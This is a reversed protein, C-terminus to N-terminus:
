KKFHKQYIGKLYMYFLTISFNLSGKKIFIEDPGSFCLSLYGKNKLYLYLHNERNDNEITMTRIDYTDFNITKLIELEYGEVDLSLYDITNIKYQDLISDIKITELEYIKYSGGDKKIADKIRKYHEDSEKSLIGSLMNAPGEVEIFEITKELDAICANITICSRIKQLQDYFRPVPEICIGKWKRTKEFFLSNSFTIGDNAGIDLFFGGEKSQLLRDVINDQRSQSYYKEM